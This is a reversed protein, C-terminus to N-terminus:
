VRLFSSFDTEEYMDFELVAPPSGPTVKGGSGNLGGLMINDESDTYPLYQGGQLYVTGVDHRKQTWKAKNYRLAYRTLRLRQGYYFGVVSSLVTILLTGIARGKFEASNVTENRSIITEDTVGASEFQFFEWIPIFRSRMLGNEFPQGASNAIADGDRDKTSVEQLREFKTEYIPIWEIPPTGTVAQVNQREDVESSFVATIDWLLRQEPRRVAEVSRCVGYGGASQTIGVQPVGLVALADVRDATVDAMEVLYNYVEDLIPVGGSSRIGGRGESQEGLLTGSVAM